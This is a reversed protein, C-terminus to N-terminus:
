CILHFAKVQKMFPAVPDCALCANRRFYLLLVKPPQHLLRKNFAWLAHEFLPATVAYSEMIEQAQQYMTKSGEM